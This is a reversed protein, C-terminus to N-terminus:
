FHFVFVNVVGIFSFLIYPFTYIEYMYLNLYLRHIYLLIFYFSVMRTKRSVRHHVASPCTAWINRILHAKTAQLFWSGRRM